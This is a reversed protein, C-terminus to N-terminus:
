RSAFSNCGPRGSNSSPRLPSSARTAAGSSPMVSTSNMMPLPVAGAMWDRWNANGINTWPRKTTSGCENGTIVVVEAGLRGRRTKTSPLARGTSGIVLTSAM